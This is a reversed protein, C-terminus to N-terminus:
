IRHGRGSRRFLFFANPAVTPAKGQELEACRNAATRNTVDRREALEELVCPDVAKRLDDIQETAVDAEGIDGLMRM